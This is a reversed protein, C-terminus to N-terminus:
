VNTHVFISVCVVCMDFTDMFHDNPNPKISNQIDKEDRMWSAEKSSHNINVPTFVSSAEKTLPLTMKIWQM